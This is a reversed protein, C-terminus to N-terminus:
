AAYNAVKNAVTYRVSGYTAHQMVTLEVTEGVIKGDVKVPIKNIGVKPFVAEVYFNKGSEFEAGTAKLYVVFEEMNRFRQQLLYDQMDKDITLTQSREGRRAYNAYLGSFGTAPRAELVM